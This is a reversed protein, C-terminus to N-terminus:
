RMTRLIRNVRASAQKYKSLLMVDRRKPDVRLVLDPYRVCGVQLRFIAAVLGCSLQKELQEMVQEDPVLFESDVYEHMMRLTESVVDRVRDRDLDLKPRPISDEM